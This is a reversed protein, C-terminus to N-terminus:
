ENDSSTIVGFDEAHCKKCLCEMDDPNCLLYARIAEYLKDWNTVGHKHHVEIAVERDKAKSAKVGCKVCSNGDRKVVAARERSRLSLMRLAAKIRSNPTYPLKKPM